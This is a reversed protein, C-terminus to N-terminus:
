PLGLVLSGDPQCSASLPLGAAVLNGVARTCQAPADHEVLVLRPPVPADEPAMGGMLFQPSAVYAGCARRLGAELTEGATTDARAELELGLLETLPGREAADIWPEGILRDKLATVADAVTAGAAEAARAVLRSVFDQEVLPSCGGYRQEWALRAEFGLGRFGRAFPAVFMGIAGQFREEETTAPFPELSPWSLAHHLSRVLVRAPLQHLLEGAGNGVLAADASDITWPDFLPELGYPGGGCGEVPAPLNFTPHTVIRVLLTELSFGSAVFVDALEQLVDRQARNRPFYNAITLRAGMVEEWVKEVINLSVLYAFAADPGLEGAADTVLGAARLEDFGRHLAAEVEFVNARTGHVSGFRADIGLPDPELAAHFAGCQSRDWGYPARGEPAAVGLLRFVSRFRLPEATDAKSSGYLAKEFLGAIPWARSLAPDESATVSSESNHCALCSPDRHLYADEFVTGFQTRRARELELPDVNAGAIPFALMHFLQARYIPSLDDLELASGLLRGLQFSPYPPDDDFPTRDRVWAALAGEDNPDSFADGYCRTAQVVSWKEDRVFRTRPVQLADLLMAGWRERYSARERMLARAVFARAAPGAFGVGALQALVAAYANVEAQGEPRRGLLAVIARRV